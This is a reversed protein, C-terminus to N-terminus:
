PKKFKKRFKYRRWAWVCFGACLIVVFMTQEIKKFNVLLLTLTNGFLFGAGGILIAWIMAGLANFWVFRWAPVTSMGLAIPGATRFGYMFRVGLILLEHYRAILMNAREVVPALRSFRALVWGGHRRGLWFYIQDGAFGGALAILIVWHLQLYGQHAALGALILVTEGELLCGAFLALYGYEAILSSLNMTM